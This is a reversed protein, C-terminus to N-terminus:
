FEGKVGITPLVPLGSVTKSKSYDYSYTISEQNRQSTVNQIDLYASLIWTDYVWKRDLRLDWQFFNEVRRSFYDGREPVYVDNDSDYFAGVIPTYPNGTVFRFRNGLTWAGWRHSTLINLNHTQDYESPYEGQGPVERFSQSLTYAVTLSWEDGYYKTQLEVGQVRGKGDNSYNRTTDPIVLNELKKYFVATEVNWGLNSGRRFDQGYGMMLHWARSSKIDENGFDADLEQPEPDQYYQGVAAKIERYDDLRNRLGFRPEANLEQTGKFYDLRLSPLFTWRSEIEPKWENRWYAGIAASRGVLNKQKTEGTGIPNTVGGDSYVLPVRLNVDYWNYENDFGLFTKWRESVQQAYEGRATLVNNKLDFFNDGIDFLIADQGLGMSLTVSRTDDLKRSWSPIVRFFETRQFFNGRLAPDETPSEEVVLELTDRSSALTVKFQEYKSLDKEYIGTFDMFTPAATLQFDENDKTAAKLVAGIYSYRGGFLFRSSDDIPGELLAGVNFIDMFVQGSYREKGPSKTELGVYGGLQRSYESGYGASLYSVRAVAEPYVVSSLGGFHFIIPVRHGDITYGTDSPDSGQIIISSSGGSPRNVGALNQVAKVPDRGAGPVLLFEEQGLSKEVSDRKEKLGTVTTEFVQYSEKELYFNQRGKLLPNVLLELKKYGALNVVLTQAEAPVQSFEFYGKSDTVAKVRSPLLFVSVESLPRKTGREWLQGQFVEQAWATHSSLLLVFGMLHSLTM